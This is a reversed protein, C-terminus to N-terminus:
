PMRNPIQPVAYRTAACYGLALVRVDITLLEIELEIVVEIQKAGM